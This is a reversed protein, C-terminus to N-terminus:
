EDYCDAFMIYERQTSIIEGFVSVVMVEMAMTETALMQYLSILTLVACFCHLLIDCDLSHAQHRDRCLM